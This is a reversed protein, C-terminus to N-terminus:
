EPAKPQLRTMFEVRTREVGIVITDRVLAMGFVLKQLLLEQRGGAVGQRSQRRGLPEVVNYRSRFCVSGLSFQWPVSTLDLQRFRSSVGSM